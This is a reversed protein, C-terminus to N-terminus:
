DCAGCSEIRGDVLDRASCLRVRDCDCLCRWVPSGGEADATKNVVTLKGFRRGPRVASEGRHAEGGCNIVKGNRLEHSTAECTEGCDCRCRWLVYRNKTGAREEAVLAGFREGTLDHARGKPKPSSSRLCGCSRTKNGTLLYGAVEKVNGCDCQCEWVVHGHRKGAPRVAVLKGFRQGALDRFAPSEGARLCGCSRTNGSILSRSPVECTNGCECQCRWVIANGVRKDTPEIATLRGFKKGALDNRRADNRLCGCSKTNGAVLAAGTVECERGCDCACRWVVRGSSRKDTPELAVLRGFRQGTLDKMALVFDQISGKSPYRKYM